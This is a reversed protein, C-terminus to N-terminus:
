GIFEAGVKMVVFARMSAILLTEGYEFHAVGESRALWGGKDRKIGDFMAGVTVPSLHIAMRGVIPGGVAWDSTYAPVACHGSGPEYVIAKEDIVEASIGHLRAVMCELEAASMDSVHRLAPATDSAIESLLQDISVRFFRALAILEAAGPEGEGNEWRLITRTNIGIAAALESQTLRRENRLRRLNPM